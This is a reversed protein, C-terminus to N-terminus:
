LRCQLGEPRAGSSQGELFFDLPDHVGVGADRDGRDRLVEPCAPDRVVLEIYEERPQFPLPM